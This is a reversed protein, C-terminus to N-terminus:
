KKGLLGIELIVELFLKRFYLDPMDDKQKFDYAIEQGKFIIDWTEQMNLVYTKKERKYMQQSTTAHIGHKM